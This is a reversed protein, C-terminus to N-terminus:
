KNSKDLFTYKKKRYWSSRPIYKLICQLFLYKYYVYRNCQSAINFFKYDLLLNVLVKKQELGGNLNEIHHTLMNGLPFIRLRGGDANYFSKIISPRHVPMLENIFIFKYKHKILYEAVWMEADKGFDFLKNYHAKAFDMNIIAFDLGLSYRNETWEASAWVAGNVKLKDIYKSIITDDLVWTFAELIILYSFDSLVVKDLGTRLLQSNGKLHGANNEISIVNDSLEYVEKPLKYGACSGNFSVVLYYDYKKWLKKIIQINCVLDDIRDYVRLVILVRNKYDKQPM